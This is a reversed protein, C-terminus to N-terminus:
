SGWLIFVNEELLKSGSLDEKCEECWLNGEVFLASGFLFCKCMSSSTFFCRCGRM